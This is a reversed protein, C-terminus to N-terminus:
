LYSYTYLGGSRGAVTANEIEYPCLNRFRQSGCCLRNARKRREMAGGYIRKQSCAIFYTQGFLSSSTLRFFLPALTRSRGVAVTSRHREREREPTFLYWARCPADSCLVVQSPIRGVLCRENAGRDQQTARLPERLCAPLVRMFAKIKYTRLWPNSLEPSAPMLPLSAIGNTWTRNFSM